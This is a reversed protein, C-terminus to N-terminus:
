GTAAFPRRALMMPGMTADEVPSMTRWVRWVMDQRERFLSLTRLGFFDLKEPQWERIQGASIWNQRFYARPM